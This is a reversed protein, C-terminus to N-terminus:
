DRFAIPDYAVDSPDITSRQSDLVSEVYRGFSDYVIDPIFPQSDLEHLAAADVDHITFEDGVTPLSSDLVIVGGDGHDALVVFNNPLAISRRLELTLTVSERLNPIGTAHWYGHTSLLWKISTPFRSGLSSEYAALSAESEPLRGRFWDINSEVFRRFADFEM